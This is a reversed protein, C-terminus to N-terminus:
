AAMHSNWIRDTIDHAEQWNWRSGHVSWLWYVCWELCGTRISVCTSDFCTNVCVAAVCSVIDPLLGHLVGAPCWNADIQRPSKLCWSKHPLTAWSQSRQISASTMDAPPVSQHRPPLVQQLHVPKSQSRCHRSVECLTVFRNRLKM